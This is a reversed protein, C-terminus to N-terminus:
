NNHVVSRIVYFTPILALIVGVVVYIKFKLKQTKHRCLKMGFLAGFGGLFVTFFLLTKESIRRNDNISRRKDIAYLLFTAVNILVFTITFLEVLGFYHVLRILFRM